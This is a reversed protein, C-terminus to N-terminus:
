VEEAEFVWSYWATSIDATRTPRTTTRCIMTPFYRCIYYDAGTVLDLTATNGVVSVGTPVERGNVIAAGIEDADDRRAAPLTFINSEGQLADLAICKLTLDNDWNISNFAAPIWGRGSIRTTRKTWAEQEVLSGDGMRHQARSAVEGYEQSIELAALRPIVLGAIILDPLSM